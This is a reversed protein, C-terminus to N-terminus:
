NRRGWIPYPKGRSHLGVHTRRLSVHLNFGAGRREPPLKKWHKYSRGAAVRFPAGRTPRGIRLIHNGSRIFKTFVIGGGLAGLGTSVAAGTWTFKKTGAYRAAYTGFGIAAGVVAGCVISVGCAIAGAIGGVALAGVAVRRWNKKWWGKRGDHDFSNIPDTPYTYATNNGGPVPDTSTFAGTAPNYYRVGMLTLGATAPTTSRHHAGLWGYGASTAVTATQDPDIPTGYETYSSWGTITTAAADAPTGAPIPVTTVVDGHITPLMLSTGGDSAISAGLGGGISATFRLTQTTGDSRKTEIWSPNDSADTYHRTTTTTKGGTVTSQVLRRQAVDLTFTTTTGAQAVMQPLDNDFYGLQVNGGAPNPAHAAPLTTQRGLADYVYGGTPRDATDYTLAQDVGRTVAGTPTGGAQITETMSKRAGNSTFTYDRVTYPSVASGQVPTGTLDEVRTLDGARNYTYRHDFDLPNGGTPETVEGDTPSDPTLGATTAIASAFTTQDTRVRGLIDNTQSWSMWEGTAVEGTDPDTVQGAYSLGVEQGAEDVRHTVTIQGPLKETTMVGDPDYAATYTLVEAGTRTITQATVLGRREANGNADVGDYTFTTAGKPDVISVVRAATDYGTTTREGLQNTYSTPKGWLDYTYTDKVGSIGTGFPNAIGVADVLGTTPNYQTFIADTEVSGTVGQTTTKEWIARGAADYTVESTRTASGSTEVTTTPELWFDYGAVRTSPMSPGSSPAAAPVRRCVEGAWAKAQDSAGCSADAANAGATYYITRTTGADAGNSAPMRSELVKGRADFRRKTTRGSADTITTPVGLVWGSTPDDLGKGDIPAYGNITKSVVEVMGAVGGSLDAAGVTVTTPLAYARGTVPNVGGHPAGEDFVTVTHPRLRATSGDALMVTRAPAFTETVVSGAPLVVQGAADTKEENYVTRTGLDDVQPGDLSPDAIATRVASADLERVVNGRSDYRTATIQWAGAGYSATNVTYAEANVYQIDAYQMDAATVGQWTLATVPHDASFVAYGNVPKQALYEPTGPDDKVWAAIGAQSLDPLGVGSVPVGYVISAIQVPAGGSTQAGRQVNKVVQTPISTDPNAAYNVTYGALGSPTITKIRTSSGEWTYTTSLNSRVDTVTSLRTLPDYTYRVVPRSSMVKGVPDFMVASVQTLRQAQRGNPDTVTTYSLDIARCGPQLAGSTPCATGALGEPLPAVIRTVAGTRPDHGFTTVGVQGPEAISAPRWQLNKSAGGAVPVFTTRTGDSETVVLSPAAVTGTIAATVGSLETGETAAVLPGVVTGTKGSANVFVLAAGEDDLLAITGDSMRQDVVGMGAVGVADEGELNATFGPGFVGTVPDAPWENVDGTGTFSLHSRELTLNSGYGPVSVDTASMQFEGTSLAVQGAGVDTTPYGDGFAHPVRVLTTPRTSDTCLREAIGSYRFCVRFELRVPGRSVIGAAALAAGADFTGEYALPRGVTGRVGVASGADVWQGDGGAMRWQQQALVSQTSSTVPPAGVSVAFAGHSAALPSPHTVSPGGWGAVFEVPVSAMTSASSVRVRLRHAGQTFAVVPLEVSRPGPEVAIVTESTAGDVMYRVLVPSGNSRAQTIVVRCALGDAPRVQSWSGDEVSCVVQPAAPVAQATRVTRWGSWAGNWVGAEDAVAARVYLTRNDPLDAPLTCSVTSGSAGLPTDCEAVLTSSSATTSTHVEINARVRNGDPDTATTSVVPRKQWVYSQGGYTGTGSVVPVTALNPRRDYTFTISPPTTSEMSGFRKWGLVDTESAAKVGLTVQAAGNKSWSQVLGTIPIRVWGAACSANAGKAVTVSGYRSGLAPQNSWRTATSASGANWVEVARPTCSYSWTEFLNLSASQIKLGKFSSNSFTVFSRAKNVGDYTGVKLEREGSRDSSINTQVFADFTPRATASAYVPDVTVPFVREEDLLWGRDVSLRLTVATGSQAAVEVSVGTRQLHERSREDVSADWALPAEFTSVVVGDGDVFEIREGPVERATLGESVLLPVDWSVVGSEDVPTLEGGGDSAAAVGGIYELLARRDSIVFSQEFGDRTAHVVLDIGPWAGVYRAASGKLVPAPLSDEWAVAVSADAGAAVEAVPVPEGRAGEVEGALVVGDPVAAPAISGDAREVLTTDFARWQGDADRFRVPAAHQTTTVMGDPGVWTTSSDSREATVEVREGTARAQIAASPFDVVGSSVPVSVEPSPGVPPEEGWARDSPLGSVVLAAVCTVSVGALVRRYWRGVVSSEM